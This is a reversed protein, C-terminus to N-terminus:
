NMIETMKDGLADALDSFSIPANDGSTTPPPAVNATPLAGPQRLLNVLQTVNQLVPDSEANNRYFCFIFLFKLDEVFDKFIKQFFITYL